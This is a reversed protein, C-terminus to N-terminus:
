RGSCACLNVARGACPPLLPPVRLALAEGPQFGTVFSGAAAASLWSLKLTQSGQPLGTLSWGQSMFEVRKQQWSSPTSTDAAPPSSLARVAASIRTAGRAQVQERLVVIKTHDGSLGSMRVAALCGLPTRQEAHGMSLLFRPPRSGLPVQGPRGVGPSASRVGGGEQRHRPRLLPPLRALRAALCALTPLLGRGRCLGAEERCLLAPPGTVAKAEGLM